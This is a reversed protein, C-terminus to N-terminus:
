SPELETAARDVSWGHHVIGALATVMRMPDPAQVVNRGFVLGMAGARMADSALQLAARPGGSSPGGAVFVPVPCSRVVRKFSDVDGTWETKIWDAGIEAALRTHAQVLDPARTRDGVRRGRTMTEITRVMGLRECDRSVRGNYAVQDAEARPDDMGLFLYTLVGDAGLHLADEVSAVLAHRGEDFGLMDGPERFQNTWDIVVLAGPAGRGVFGAAARGLM